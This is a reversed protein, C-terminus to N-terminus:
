CVGRFYCDEVRTNNYSVDVSTGFLAHGGGGGYKIVANGKSERQKTFRCYPPATYTDWLKGEPSAEDGAM